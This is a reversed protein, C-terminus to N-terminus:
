GSDAGTAAATAFNGSRKKFVVKFVFLMEWFFLVVPVLAVSVLELDVDMRVDLKERIKM